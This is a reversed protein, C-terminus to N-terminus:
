APICGAGDTCRTVAAGHAAPLHSLHVSTMYPPTGASGPAIM